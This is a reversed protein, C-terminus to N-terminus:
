KLVYITVNKAGWNICDDYEDMFLDVIIDGVRVSYGTDAAIAYGYVQGDDAIIYLESGYPIIDPDVAVYGQFVTKGTSMLAGPEATYACSKGTHAATYNVPVGNEDLELWGPIDFRSVREVSEPDVGKPAEEISIENIQIDAIQVAPETEAETEPETEAETVPETEAETVPETEAETEPETEAETVTTVIDNEEVDRHENAFYKYESVEYESLSEMNDAEASEAAASESLYSEVKESIDPIYPKDAVPVIEEEADTVETTEYVSPVATETVGIDEASIDESGTISFVFAFGAVALAAAAAIYRNRMGNKKSHDALSVMEYNDNM